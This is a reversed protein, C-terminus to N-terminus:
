LPSLPLWLSVRTGDVQPRSEVEWRGGLRRCTQDVTALGLGANKGIVKTTFFAEGLRSRVEPALGPGPDEVRVVAFGVESTLSLTLSGAAELANILVPLLAREVEARPAQLILSAPTDWRTCSGLESLQALLGRLVQVLDVSDVQQEQEASLQRLRAIIEQARHCAQLASQIRVDPQKMLASELALQIAGLPSNLEHAVGASMQSIALTKQARLWFERSDELQHYLRARGLSVFFLQALGQLAQLQQHGLLAPDSHAFFLLEGDVVPVAVVSGAEPWAAPWRARDPGAMYGCGNLGVAWQLVNLPPQLGWSILAQGREVWGASQLPVLQQLCALLEEWLRQLDLPQLLRQACQLLYGLSDVQQRLGRSHLEIQQQQLSQQRRLLLNRLWPRVTELVEGLRQFEGRQWALDARGLYLWCGELPLLLAQNEGELWEPSLLHPQGDLIEKDPLWLSVSELRSRGPSHSWLPELQNQYLCCSRLGLPGMLCDGLLPGLQAPESLQSLQQQLKQLEGARQLEQQNRDRERLARRLEEQTQTFSRLAAEALEAQVRYVSNQAGWYLGLLGPLWLLRLLDPGSLWLAGCASWWAAWRLPALNLELRLWSAYSRGLTAALQRGVQAQISLVLGGILGWCILDRILGSPFGRFLLWLPLVVLAALGDALLAWSTPRQLLLLGLLSACALLFNAPPTELSGWCVLSWALQLQFVGFYPNSRTALQGALVGVVWVGLRGAVPMQPPCICLEVGMLLAVMLLM